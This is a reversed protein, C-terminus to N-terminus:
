HNWFKASGPVDDALGSGGPRPPRPFDGIADGVEEREEGMREERVYTTQKEESWGSRAQKEQSKAGVTGRVPGPREGSRDGKEEAEDDLYTRLRVGVWVNVRSKGRVPQPATPTRPRSNKLGTICALLNRAFHSDAGPMHNSEECWTKWATYIQAKPVCLAPGKICREAVFQGIPSGLDDLAQALTEGSTPTTFRKQKQLRKWGEIAWLLISSLERLLRDTLTFDEKDYFSQTLPLIVFRGALAGSADNLRPMENTALVFRTSLKVTVQSLHKRDITQADEGSISLLREVITATDARSSMRADSVMAVTKGILPQLGFNQALSGLTPGSVNAAGILGSLVRLITGKGSRRPGILLLIKQQRTDATLLYGFWEQLCAIAEHDDPWLQCLFKLWELPRPAKPDHNYPVANCNFFAPTSPLLKGTALEVLGNQAPLLSLPDPRSEIATGIWCPQELDDPLITLSELAARVEGVFNKKVVAKAPPRKKPEDAEDDGGDTGAAEAAGERFKQLARLYLSLYLEELFRWLEATMEASSVKRYRPGDFRYFEQRWTRIFPAAARPLPTFWGKSSVHGLFLRGVYIPDAFNIPAECDGDPEDDPGDSDAPEAAEAPATHVAAGATPAKGFEGGWQHARALPDYASGGELLYGRPRGFPKSDAQRIKHLLERESWPPECRPNHEEQLLALSEVESLNFGYRVIRAAIFTRDHGKQGSLAPECKRVYRRARESADPRPGASLNSTQLPSAQKKPHSVVEAPILVPDDGAVSLIHAVAASGALWEVGNWVRSWFARKPHKGPARLWNGFPCAPGIEAQKPFSEPRKTLTHGKALWEGFRYLIAGAVRDRLLARLHYGGKGDSETLLPHFGLAVLEAYKAIAFQENAEPSDSETHADIDLAAWKGMSDVGLAHFGLVHEPQTALFHQELIAETVYGETASKPVTLPKVAGAPERYYSGARDTRNVLRAM